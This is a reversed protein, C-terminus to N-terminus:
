EVHKLVVMCEEKKHIALVGKIHKNQEPFPISIEKRSGIIVYQSLEELLKKIAPYESSLNNQKLQYIINLSELRREHETRYQKERDEKIQNASKKASKDKKVM